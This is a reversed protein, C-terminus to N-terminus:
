YHRTHFPICGPLQPLPLPLVELASQVPLGKFCELPMQLHQAIAKCFPQAIEDDESVRHSYKPDVEFPDNRSESLQPFRPWPDM